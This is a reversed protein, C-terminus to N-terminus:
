SAARTFDVVKYAIVAGIGKPHNASNWDQLFAKMPGAFGLGQATKIVVDVYEGPLCPMNKGDHQTYGEPIRKFRLHHRGVPNLNHRM